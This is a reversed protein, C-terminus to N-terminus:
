LFNAWRQSLPINSIKPTSFMNCNIIFIIQPLFGYELHGKTFCNVSQLFFVPILKQQFKGPPDFGGKTRLKNYQEVWNHHQVDGLYGISKVWQPYLNQVVGTTTTWEKGLGGVWLADGKVTM